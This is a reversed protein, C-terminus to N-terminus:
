KFHEGCIVAWSDWITAICRELEIKLNKCVTKVDDRAQAPSKTEHFLTTNPFYIVKCNEGSNKENYGLKFMAQKLERHKEPVDYIVISAM